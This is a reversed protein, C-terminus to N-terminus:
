AVVKVYGIPQAKRTVKADFNYRAAEDLGGRTVYAIEIKSATVKTVLGFRDTGRSYTCAVDGVKPMRSVAPITECNMNVLQALQPRMTQDEVHRNIANKAATVAAGVRKMTPLENIDTLEAKIHHSTVGTVIWTIWSSLEVHGAQYNGWEVMKCDPGYTRTTASVTIVIDYGNHTLRELTNKITTVTIGDSTNTTTTTETTNM